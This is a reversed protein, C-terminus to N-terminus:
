LLKRCWASYLNASGYRSPRKAIREPASFGTSLFIKEAASFSIPYPVWPNPWRKEYEVLIFLGEPKLYTRLKKLLTQKNKVYHLSNAMVLGDLAPLALNDKEFDAQIFQIGPEKLEQPHRDVSWVTSGAPLLDRLAKSFLGAGCGLDVWTQFGDRKLAPSNILDSAEPVTM